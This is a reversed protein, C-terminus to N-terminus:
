PYVIIYVPEPFALSYKEPYEQNPAFHRISRIGDIERALNYKAGLSQYLSIFTFSKKSSCVWLAM